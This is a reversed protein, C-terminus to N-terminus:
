CFMRQFDLFQVNGALGKAQFMGPESAPTFPGQVGLVRSACLGVSHGAVESLVLFDERRAPTQRILAPVSYVPYLADGHPYLGAVPGHGPTFSCFADGGKVVQSVLQVPIGWQLGDSEFVLARDMWGSLPLAPRFPAALLLPRDPALAEVRLELYLEREFLLAGRVLKGVGEGLGPPVQFVTAGSLDAVGRVKKVRLVLTPSTDLLVVVGPRTEPAGGLLQSADHVPHVGRFRDGAGDPAAVEAVRTAELVLRSVGAEFLLCLRRGREPTSTM